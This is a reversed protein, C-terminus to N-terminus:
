CDINQTYHRQTRGSEALNEMMAEFPTFEPKLASEFTKLLVNHLQEAAQPDLYVSAHFLRKSSMKTGSTSRFDAVGANTSIGAGSVIIIKVMRMDKTYPYMPERKRMYKIVLRQLEMTDSPDVSLSHLLKWIGHEKMKFHIDVKQQMRLGAETSPQLTTTTLALPDQVDSRPLAQETSEHNGATRPAAAKIINNFDIRTVRKQTKQVATPSSTFQQIERRKTWNQQGETDTDTDSEIRLAQSMDGLSRGQVPLNDPSPRPADMESLLDTAAQNNQVSGATTAILRRTIAIEKDMLQLTATQAYTSKLNAVAHNFVTGLMSADPVFSYDGGGLDSISQLLGEELNYGFGFTHIPVPIRGLGRGRCWRRMAAIIGNSLPENPQGDTLVMLAATKDVDGSFQDLALQMGSWLYTSSEPQMSLIKEKACNKNKHNMPLRPLLVKCTESFTVICLTDHENLSETVTYAAHKTLDLVTFGKQESEDGESRPPVPALDNMSPSVDILLVIEVPGRGQNVVPEMPPVVKVIIGDYDVYHILVECGIQPSIDDIEIRNDKSKIRLPLDITPRELVVFGGGGVRENYSMGELSAVHSRNLNAM